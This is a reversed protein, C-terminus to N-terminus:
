LGGAAAPAKPAKAVREKRKAMWAQFCLVSWLQHHRNSQESLHLQWAKRIPEPRLLGQERLTQEDLLSEAWDRLPGRLWDDIPVGFGMKPREMMSRPVHRYLVQRLAWKTQGDRIKQHMPLRWAFRLVRHDLLPVRSELSVAMTARDVKTLIDAPLYSTMDRFLLRETPNAGAPPAPGRARSTADDAELGRVLRHPEKWDARLYDYIGDVDGAALAGALKHLKESPIRVRLAPPLLDEVLRYTQDVTAPSPARLGRAILRRLVAPVRGTARAVRPAWLHRNYGAFLEDGGDGSLSVTVERRALQSVLYTPIQSSDAFPEDYLTALEPVVSLADDASVIQEHHETGLHRAVARAHDAEDYAENDFGISFTKVPRESQAQMMAVVTSSDFGGSLFAGLPVDAVMRDGVAEMLHAELRDVAEDDSGEFPHELGRRAVDKLDWYSIREGEGDVDGYRRVEAPRLKRVEEYITRPAPISNYRMLEGLGQRDIQGEFAPHAEIARLESGVLLRKELRAVYLPKIGLRDRGVYLAEEDRDWLAFAFMGNARELTEVLGWTEIGALLVETDSHGQFPYDGRQGQIEERLARFNYIEGNYSLIFRGSASAMPQRGAESLDIISLRRHGLAIGRDADIWRGRGDPGRHRLTESMEDIRVELAEDGRRSWM